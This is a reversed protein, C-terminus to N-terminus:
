QIIFKQIKEKVRLCLNRQADDGCKQIIINESFELVKPLFIENKLNKQEEQTNIFIKQSTFWINNEGEGGGDIWIERFECFLEMKNCNKLELRKSCTMVVCNECNYLRIKGLCPGMILSCNKVRLVNIESSYDLLFIICNDLDNLNFDLGHIEGPYKELVEKRLNEFTYQAPDARKKPITQDIISNINYRNLLESFSNSFSPPFIASLYRSLALSKLELPIGSNEKLQNFFEIYTFRGQTKEIFKSLVIASQFYPNMASLIINYRPLEADRNFYTTYADDFMALCWNIIKKKYQRLVDQNIDPSKLMEIMSFLDTLNNSHIYEYAKDINNKITVAIFVSQVHDILPVSGILMGHVTGDVLFPSGSNRPAAPNTVAILDNSSALVYGPCAVLAKSRVFSSKVEDATIELKEMGPLIFTEIKDEVYPYGYLVTEKNDDIKFSQMKVTFCNALDTPDKKTVAFIAIDHPVSFKMKTIPDIEPFETDIDFASYILFAKRCDPSRFDREIQYEENAFTFYYPPTPLNLEFINLFSHACSVVICLIECENIILKTPVSAVWATSEKGNLSIVGISNQQIEGQACDRSCNLQLKGGTRNLTALSLCYHGHLDVEM